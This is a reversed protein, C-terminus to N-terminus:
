LVERKRPDSFSFLRVFRAKDGFDLLSHAYIALSFEDKIHLYTSFHSYNPFTDLNGPHSAAPLLKVETVKGSQIVMPLSKRITTSKSM